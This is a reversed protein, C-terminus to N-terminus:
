LNACQDDKSGQVANNGGKPVPNNEKCQLNGNIANSIITAGGGNQFVQINGGVQNGAASLVGNNSEFQIDGTVSVNEVRASGGHKIQISGGISSGALVEVVSAGDAQINGFVKINQATLAAGSEVKINGTVTTGNLICNGGSPVYINEVTVAGIFGQCNGANAQAPPVQTATPIPPTPTPLAEVVVPLPTPTGTAELIESSELSPHPTSSLPPVESAEPSPTVGNDDELGEDDNFDDYRTDLTIAAAKSADLAQQIAPQAEAPISALMPILISEYSHLIATTEASLGVARAHDIQSLRDIANLSKQLDEDFESGAQKMDNYRGARILAQFESLRRAAFRLYLRAQSDADVTLGARTDEMTTKVTYLADGPLSSSAAYATIGVGGFLFLGFVFLVSLAFLILRMRASNAFRQKLDKFAFAWFAPTFWGAPTKSGAPEEFMMNLIAVFREQNHRAIDLDREPQVAYAKLMQQLRPDLENETNKVKSM